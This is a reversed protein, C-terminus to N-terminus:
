MVPIQSGNRCTQEYATLGSPVAQSSPLTQVVPSVQVAPVHPPPVGATSQLSAFGHVSSLQSGKSPHTWALLVIGQSSPSRHVLPSAQEPPAQELPVAITQLSLLAHVASEHLGPTPHTKVFVVAAHSSLSGQVSSEQLGPDPHTWVSLVAGHLSPFAQVVPSAHLPPTHTPPETALQLSPFGQVLSEQLGPDPHTWVLLEAGHVSPLTQVVFSVQEPPTQTGPGARTQLSPFTHVFSEQLANVPHLKVFLVAGHLSPLAHVVPSTQEPPPQRLPEAAFQSSPSSHVVSEHLAPDPHAWTAIPPHQVPSASQSLWAFPVSLQGLTDLGVCVSVSASPTPSAQSRHTVIGFGACPSTSWSPVPSAQSRVNVAGTM